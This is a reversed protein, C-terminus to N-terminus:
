YEYSTFYLLYCLAYSLFIYFMQELRTFIIYKLIQHNQIKWIFRPVLNRFSM